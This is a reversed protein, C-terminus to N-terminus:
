DDCLGQDIHQEAHQVAALCAASALTLSPLQLQVNGAAASMDQLLLKVTLIGHEEHVAWQLAARGLQLTLGAGQLLLLM